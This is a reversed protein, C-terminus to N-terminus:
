RSARRPPAAPPRPRGGGGDGRGGRGLRRPLLSRRAPGGFQGYRACQQRGASGRGPKARRRHRLGLRGLAGKDITDDAEEPTASTMASFDMRRGQVGDDLTHHHGAARGDLVPPAATAKAALSAPTTGFPAAATCPLRPPRRTPPRPRRRTASTSM